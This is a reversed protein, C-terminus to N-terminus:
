EGYKYDQINVKESVVYFLDNKRVKEDVKVSIVSKQSAVDVSKGDIRIDNAVGFVIGTKEGTFLMREGKKMEGADRDPLPCGTLRRARPFLARRQRRGLAQRAAQLRHLDVPEPSAQLRQGLWRPV